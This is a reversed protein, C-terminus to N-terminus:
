SHSGAACRELKQKHQFCARSSLESLHLGALGRRCPRNRSASTAAVRGFSWKPDRGFNKGASSRESVVKTVTLVAFCFEWSNSSARGYM